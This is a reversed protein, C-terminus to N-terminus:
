GHGLRKLAMFRLRNASKSKSEHHAQHVADPQDFKYTDSLPLSKESKHIEKSHLVIGNKHAGDSAKSDSDSADEYGAAKMSQSDPFVYAHPLNPDIDKDHQGGVSQIVHFNPLNHLKKWDLDLSKTYAYFKKDPNQSAIQHWKDIYEQNYFDGSDHVRIKQGAKYKKLTANMRPVFDERESAAWNDAKADKSHGSVHSYNPGHDAAKSRSTHGAPLSFAVIKDKKLKANNENMSINPPITADKGAKVKEGVEVGDKLHKIAQHLKALETSKDKGKFKEEIQQVTKPHDQMRRALEARATQLHKDIYSLPESVPSTEHEMKPPEKIEEQKKGDEDKRL